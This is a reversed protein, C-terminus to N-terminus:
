YTCIYDSRSWGIYKGYRVKYWVFGDKANVSDIIQVDRGNPMYLRAKYGRSPGTRLTVKGNVSHTCAYAASGYYAPGVAAQASMGTMAVASGILGAASLYIM